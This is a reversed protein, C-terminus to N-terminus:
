HRPSLMRDNSVTITWRENHNDYTLAKLVDQYKIYFLGQHSLQYKHKIVEKDSDAIEVDLCNLLNFFVDSKCMGSKIEDIGRLTLVIKSKKGNFDNLCMSSGISQM